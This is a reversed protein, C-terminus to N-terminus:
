YGPHLEDSHRSDYYNIGVHLGLLIVHFRFGAHDDTKPVVHVEIDLINYWGWRHCEIEFYKHKALKWAKFAM